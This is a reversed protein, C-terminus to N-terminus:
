EDFLPSSDKSCEREQGQFPSPSDDPVSSPSSTFSKPEYIALESLIKRNLLINSKNLNQVFHHYKLHHEKTAASLRTIWLKRMRRKKKIKASTSYILAKHVSRVALSYCNARRYGFHKSIQFIKQKRYYRDPPPCRPMRLCWSLRM